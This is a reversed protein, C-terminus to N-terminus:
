MPQFQFRTWGIYGPPGTHHSSRQAPKASDLENLVGLGSSVLKQEPSARRPSCGILSDKLDENTEDLHHEVDLSRVSPDVKEFSISEMGSLSM